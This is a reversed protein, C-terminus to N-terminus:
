ICARGDLYGEKKLTRILLRRGRFIRTKVAGESLNLERAIEALSWEAVFRLELVRRYDEPMGRIIAVLAHFEGEGAPAPADWGEALPTERSTKRLVDLANHRVVVMLWASVRDDPKDRLQDFCRILKVFGDHVADEAQPGHGLIGAALRLLRQHERQYLRVLRGRDDEPPNVRHFLM